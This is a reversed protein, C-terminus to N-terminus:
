FPSPPEKGSEELTKRLLCLRLIRYYRRATHRDSTTQDPLESLVNRERMYQVACIVTGVFNLIFFLTDYELSYVTLCIGGLTNFLIKRKAYGWLVLLMGLVGIM